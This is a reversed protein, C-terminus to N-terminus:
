RAVLAAIFLTVGYGFLILTLASVLLVFVLVATIFGDKM